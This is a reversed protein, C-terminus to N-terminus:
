APGTAETPFFRKLKGTQQRDFSAVIRVAVTPRQLGARALDQELSAALAAPDLSGQVRVAVNAGAATQHVQYEIINPESGLRSRFVLPHVVAGYRYVFVDDSRGEIDEIRRMGSGCPCPEDTLTAEDTLEYRILPQVHNYLDTIYMKAARVGPPVAHGEQDVLEFITVDEICEAERAV